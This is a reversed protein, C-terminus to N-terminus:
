DGRHAALFAAAAAISRAASRTSTHPSHGADVRELAAHPLARRAAELEGPETRPDDRGHLLLTPARVDGLRGDFLDPRGAAGEAIIALWAHGGAAIVERWSPGHDRVLAAVVAGGFREPATIGTEFFPISGPKAAFFHLGELVLASIRSPALIATWAAIVAGDSHGWLAAREVGLAELIRLTEVAMARHFRPPLAAVRESGGYGTRDPAIVRHAPALADIAADFSYAEYGWGGHLLAVAPGDGRERVWIRVPSRDPAVPSSALLLESV